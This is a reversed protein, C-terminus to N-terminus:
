REEKERDGSGFTVAFLMPFAAFLGYAYRFENSVPTALLLSGLLMIFPVYLLVAEGRREYALYAVGFVMLWTNLGLRWVRNYLDQFGMLFDHMALEDDYSFLKRQTTIGFPNEVMFYEGYVYEYDRKTLAWYGCTQRVEAVMYQLPNRLGVRLWLRFYAGKNDAIAQQDGAERIYNKVIDFFWPNYYEGVQAVPAVRDLMEVEEETLSGGKLYACLLHQVPMTLGEITDPPEVHLAGLVPGRYLLFCLLVGCVCAFTRVPFRRRWMRVAVLILATGLFIFIGNSRLLCLLLGAAFYAAWRRKQRGQGRAEGNGNEEKEADLDFALTMWAFLLLVATFVMDKGMFITMLGNIPLFAYFATALAIWLVRSGRRYLRYLLFGYVMAMGLMQCFTYLAAGGTYTGSLRYGTMFFLKMLLTHFYPHHNSPPAWGLIQEIQWVVDNSLWGPYYMLYYPLYCVLCIGTFLVYVYWKGAREKREPLPRLFPIAQRIAERQSIATCLALLVCYSGLFWVGARGLNRPISLAEAKELQGLMAAATYFMAFPLLILFQRKQPMHLKNNTHLSM